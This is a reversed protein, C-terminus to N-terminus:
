HFKRVGRNGEVMHLSANTLGLKTSVGDNNLYAGFTDINIIGDDLFINDFLVRRSSSAQLHVILAFLNAFIWHLPVIFWWIGDLLARSATISQEAGSLTYNRGKKRSSLIGLLNRYIWVNEFIVDSQQMTKFIDRLNGPRRASDFTTKSSDCFITIKGEKKLLYSFVITWFDIYLTRPYLFGLLSDRKHISMLEQPTFTVRLERVLNSWFECDVYSKGCSCGIRNGYVLRPLNVLEGVCLIKSSSKGLIAAFISSGSRGYGSIYLVRM